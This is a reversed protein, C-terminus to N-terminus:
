HGLLPRLILCWGRLELRHEGLELFNQHSLFRGALRREDGQALALFLQDFETDVRSEHQLVLVRHVRRAGYIQVTVVWHLVLPLDDGKALIDHALRESVLGIPLEFLNRFETLLKALQLELVPSGLLGVVGMLFVLARRVAVVVLTSPLNETLIEPQVVIRGLKIRRHVPVCDFM